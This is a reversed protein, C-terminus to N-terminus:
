LRPTSFLQRFGMQLSDCSNHVFGKPYGNVRKLARVLRLHLRLTGFDRQFNHNRHLM